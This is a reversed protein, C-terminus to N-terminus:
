KCGRIAEGSPNKCVEGTESDTYTTGTVPYKDTAPDILAPFTNIGNQIICSDSICKPMDIEDVGFLWKGITGGNDRCIAEGTSLCTYEGHDPIKIRVHDCSLGPKDLQPVWYNPVISAEPESSCSPVTHIFEYACVNDIEHEFVETTPGPVDSEVVRVTGICSSGGNYQLVNNSDTRDYDGILVGPPSNQLISGGPGIVVDYSNGVSDPIGSITDCFFPYPDCTSGQTISSIALEFDGPIGFFGDVLIYYKIGADALFNVASRFEPCADDNGDVCILSDCSGSYVSLITDFDAFSCTSVTVLETEKPEYSYWIGRGGPPNSTGCVAVGDSSAEVTSGSIVSGASLEIANQCVDNAIRIPSLAIEFNGTNDRFGHVLIFYEIGAEAFFSVEAQFGCSDDIGTVCSLSSCSGTFVSIKTDYSTFPSCTSAVFYESVTPIFSYWVGPSTNRTGCTGVNDFTADVTSGITSIGKSLTAANECMDNSPAVQDASIGDAVADADADGAIAQETGFVLDVEVAGETVAESIDVELQASGFDPHHATILITSCVLNVICAPVNEGDIFAAFPSPEMNDGICSCKHEFNEDVAISKSNPNLPAVHLTIPSSLKMSGAAAARGAVAIILFPAIMKQLKKSM